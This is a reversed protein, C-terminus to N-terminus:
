EQSTGNRKLQKEAQAVEDALRKTSEQAKALDARAKRLRLEVDQQLIDCLLSNLWELNLDATHSCCGSVTGGASLWLKELRDSYDGNCALRRPGCWNLMAHLARQLAEDTPLDLGLQGQFVDLANRVMMAVHLKETMDQLVLADCGALRRPPTLDAADELAAAVAAGDLWPWGRTDKRVSGDDHRQVYKAVLHAPLSVAYQQVDSEAM